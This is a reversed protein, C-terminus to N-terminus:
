EHGEWERKRIDRVWASSEMMDDRDRWMGIFPEDALSGKKLKANCVPKYRKRLFTVFDIVERKAEPPLLEIERWLEDQQM